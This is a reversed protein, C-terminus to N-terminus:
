AAKKAAAVAKYEATVRQVLRSLDITIIGNEEKFGLDKFEEILRQRMGTTDDEPIRSLTLVFQNLISILRSYKDLTDVNTQMKNFDKARLLAKLKGEGFLIATGQNERVAKKTARDLDSVHIVPSRVKKIKSLATKDEASLQAYVDNIAATQSPLHYVILKGKNGIGKLTEQINTLDQATALFADGDFQIQTSQKLQDGFDQELLGLRTSFESEIADLALSLDADFTAPFESEQMLATISADFSRLGQQVNVSGVQASTREGAVGRTVGLVQNVQDRFSGLQEGELIGDTGFEDVFFERLSADTFDQRNALKQTLAGLENPKVLQEFTTKLNQKLQNLFSTRKVPDINLAFSIFDRFQQNLTAKNTTAFSVGALVRSFEFANKLRLEVDETAGKDLVATGLSNGEVAVPQYSVFASNGDVAELYSVDQPIPRGLDLDFHGANGDQADLVIQKNDVHAAFRNWDQIPQLGQRKASRHFPPNHGSVVLDVGVKEAGSRILTPDFKRNTLVGQLKKSDYSRKGQSSVFLNVFAEETQVDSTLGAHVLLVAQDRYSVKSAAPSKEFFRKVQELRESGFEKKVLVEFKFSQVAGQKFTSNQLRNKEVDGINSADHNGLIYHVSNPFQAKLNMIAMMLRFSDLYAEDSTDASGAHIADGLIVLHTDGRNLADLMTLGFGDRSLLAKELNDYRGHLDGISFLRRAGKINILAGPNGLSDTPRVETSYNLANIAQEVREPTMVDLINEKKPLVNGLSAAQVAGSEESFSPEKFDKLSLLRSVLGKADLELKNERRQMLNNFNPNTPAPRSLVSLSKIAAYIDKNVVGKQPSLRLLPAIEATSRGLILKQIPTKGATDVIQNFQEVFFLLQYIRLDILDKGQNSKVVNEDPRPTEGVRTTFDATLRKLKVAVQVLAKSLKAREVLVEVKGESLATDRIEELVPLVEKEVARQFVRDTILLENTVDDPTLYGISADIERPRSYYERLVEEILDRRLRMTERVANRKEQPINASELISDIKEDTLKEKLETIVPLLDRNFDIDQDNLGFYRSGRLTVGNAGKVQVAQSLQNKVYAQLILYDRLKGGIKSAMKQDEPNGSNFLNQSIIQFRRAIEKKANNGFQSQKTIDDVIKQLDVLRGVAELDSAFSRGRGVNQETLGLTELYKTYSDIESPPHDISHLRAKGDVSVTVLFNNAFRDEDLLLLDVVSAKKLDQVVGRSDINGHNSFRTFDGLTQSDRVIKTLLGTKGNFNEVYEARVSDFGVLDSVESHLVDGFTAFTMEKLLYYDGTVSDKFYNRRGQIGSAISGQLISEVEELSVTELREVLPKKLQEEIAAIRAERRVRQQERSFAARREAEQLARQIAQAEQDYLSKDQIRVQPTQPPAVRRRRQRKVPVQERRGSPVLRPAREPARRTRSLVAAGRSRQPQVPSKFLRSPHVKLGRAIQQILQNVERVDRQNPPKSLISDLRRKLSNDRTRQIFPILTNLSEDSRVQIKDLTGLQGLSKATIEISTHAGNLAASINKVADQIEQSENGYRDPHYKIMLKRYAKKVDVYEAGIAADLLMYPIGETNFRELQGRRAEKEYDSLTRSINLDELVSAANELQKAGLYSHFLGLQVNVNQQQQVPLNLYYDIAQDFQGDVRLNRGQELSEELTPLSMKQVAARLVRKLAAENRRLQSGGLESLIGEIRSYEQMNVGVPFGTPKDAILDLVVADINAKRVRDAIASSLNDGLSGLTGDVQIVTGNKSTDTISIHKGSGDAKADVRLKLHSGSVRVIGPLNFSELESRGISIDEGERLVNNTGINLPFSQGAQNVLYIGIEGTSLPLLSLSFDSQGALEFTIPNNSDIIIPEGKILSQKIRVPSELVRQEAAQREFVKRREEAEVRQEEKIKARRIAMLLQDKRTKLLDSGSQRYAFRKQPNSANIKNVLDGLRKRIQSFGRDDFATVYFEKAVQNSVEIGLESLSKNTNLLNFVDAESVQAQRLLVSALVLKKHEDSFAIGQNFEYFPQVEIPNISTQVVIKNVVERIGSFSDPLKSQISLLFARVADENEEDISFEILIRSLQTLRGLQEGQALADSLYVGIDEQILGADTFRDVVDQTNIASPFIRGLRKIFDLEQPGNNRSFLSFYSAGEEGEVSFANVFHRLNKIGYDKFPAVIRGIDQDVISRESDQSSSESAQAFDLFPGAPINKEAFNQILTLLQQATIDPSVELLEFFELWDLRGKNKVGPQNIRINKILENAVQMLDQASEGRDFLTNVLESARREADVQGVNYKESIKKALSTQLRKGRSVFSAIRSLVDEAAKINQSPIARSFIGKKKLGARFYRDIVDKVSQEDASYVHENGSLLTDVVKQVTAIYNRRNKSAAKLDHALSQFQRPTIKLLELDEELEEYIERVGLSQASVEEYNGEGDISFLLNDIELLVKSDDLSLGKFNEGPTIGSWDELSSSIRTLPNGDQEVDLFSNDLKIDKVAGNDKNIQIRTALRPNNSVAADLISAIKQAATASHVAYFGQPLLSEESAAEQRALRDLANNRAKLVLVDKQSSDDEWISFLPRLESNRYIDAAEFVDMGPEYSLNNYFRIQKQIRNAYSIFEQNEAYQQNLIELETKRTELQAKVKEALAKVEDLESISWDSDTWGNLVRSQVQEGAENVTVYTAQFPSAMQEIDMGLQYQGLLGDYYQTLQSVKTARDVFQSSEAYQQNIRDWEQKAQTLRDIASAKASQVDSHDEVSDLSWLSVVSAGNKDKLQYIGDLIEQLEKQPDLTLNKFYDAALAARRNFDNIRQADKAAEEVRKRREIETRIKQESSLKLAQIDPRELIDLTDFDWLSLEKFETEGTSSTIAVAIGLPSLRKELAKESGQLETILADFDSQNANLIDAYFSRIATEKEQRKREALLEQELAVRGEEERYLSSAAEIAAVVDADEDMRDLDEYDWLGGPFVPQGTENTISRFNLLEELAIGPSYRVSQLYTLVQGKKEQFEAEEKEFVDQASPLLTKIKDLVVRAASIKSAPIEDSFIGRKFSGKFFNDLKLNESRESETLSVEPNEVSELYRTVKIAFEERTGEGRPLLATFLNFDQFDLGLLQMETEIETYAAKVDGLSFANASELNQVEARTQQNQQLVNQVDIPSVGEIDPSSLLNELAEISKVAVELQGQFYANLAKQLQEAASGELGVEKLGLVFQNILGDVIQVQNEGQAQRQLINQKWQNLVSPLDDTIAQALQNSIEQAAAEKYVNLALEPSLTTTQKYKAYSVKGKMVDWYPTEDDFHTIRPTLVLYSFGEKKFKEKIGGTHFGGTVVMAFKKNQKDMLSMLNDYLVQDRKLAADYFKMHPQFLDDLELRGMNRDMFEWFQQEEFLEKNSQYYALEERTLELKSLNELIKLHYFHQDLIKQEENEFLQSKIERDIQELEKFLEEGQIQELQNLHNIYHSLNRYQSKGEGESVVGMRKAYSWLWPYFQDKEVKREKFDTIKSQFDKLAEQAEAGSSNKYFREVDREMNFADSQAQTFDITKEREMGQLLEAMAVYSSLDLNLSKASAILYKIYELLNIRETEYDESKDFNEKLRKSYIEDKKKKLWRRIDLLKMDVREKVEISKLFAEKNEYYIDMDEIGWYTSEKPNVIAAYEAGSLEGKRVFGDIVKEKIEQVPFSRFLDTELAGSGGELAVLNLNHEEQFSQILNKINFQAEYICHADQLYIILPNNETATPSQYVEEVIGFEKPIEIKNVSPIVISNFTPNSWVESIPYFVSNILFFFFVLLSGVKKLLVNREVQCSNPQGSYSNM